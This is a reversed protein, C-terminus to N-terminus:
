CSFASANMSFCPSQGSKVGSDPCCAALVLASDTYVVVIHPFWIAWIKQAIKNRMMKIKITFAVKLHM